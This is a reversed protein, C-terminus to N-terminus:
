SDAVYEEVTDLTFGDFDLTCSAEVEILVGAGAHPGIRGASLSAVGLLTLIKLQIFKGHAFTL